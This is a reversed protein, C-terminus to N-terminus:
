YGWVVMSGDRCVKLDRILELNDRTIRNYYDKMQRFAVEHNQMLENIHLNKREEMEHIDVKPLRSRTLPGATGKRRKLSAGVKGRLQLDARLCDLRSECSCARLRIPPSLATRNASSIASPAGRLRREDQQDEERDQTGGAGGRPQLRQRDGAAPTSPGGQHGTAARQAGSLRPGGAGPRVLEGRGGAQSQERARVGSAEGEAPVGPTGSPPARGDARDRPRQGLHAEGPGAGGEEHHQLVDSHCEAGTACPKAGSRTWTWTSIRPHASRAVLRASHASPRLASLMLCLASHVSWRWGAHGERAAAEPDAAARAAEGQRGDGYPNRNQPAVLPAPFPACRGGSVLVTQVRRDSFLM